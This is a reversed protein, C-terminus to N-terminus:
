VSLFITGALAIGLIIFVVHVLKSTRLVKWTRGLVPTAKGPVTKLTKSAQERLVQYRDVDPEEVPEPELELEFKEPLESRLQLEPSLDSGNPPPAPKFEPRVPAPEAPPAAAPAPEQRRVEPRNLKLSSTGGLLRLQLYAQQNNPELKLIQKYCDKRESPDELLDGLLLWADVNRGNRHLVDVLEKVAGEQDGQALLGRAHNLDAM